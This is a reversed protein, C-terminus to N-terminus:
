RLALQAASSGTLRALANRSLGSLCAVLVLGYGSNLADSAVAKGRIEAFSKTEPRTVIKDVGSHVGM